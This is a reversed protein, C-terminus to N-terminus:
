ECVGKEIDRGVFLIKNEAEAKDHRENIQKIQEDFWETNKLMEQGCEIM